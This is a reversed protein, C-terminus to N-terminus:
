RLLMRLLIIILIAINIGVACWAYNQNINKMFKTKYRLNWLAYIMLLAGTLLLSLAGSFVNNLLVFLLFIFLTNTENSVVWKNFKEYWKSKIQLNSNQKSESILYGPTWMLLFAFPMSAIIMKKSIGIQVARKYKAYINAVMVGFVYLYLLTAFIGIIWLWVPHYAYLWMFRYQLIRINYGVAFLTIIPVFISILCCGNVIAVFDDRHM